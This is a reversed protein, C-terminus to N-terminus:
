SRSSWQNLTGSLIFNQSQTRAKKWLRSGLGKRHRWPVAGRYRASVKCRVVLRPEQLRRREAAV